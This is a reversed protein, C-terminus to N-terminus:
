LIGAFNLHTPTTWHYAFSAYSKFIRFCHFVLNACNLNLLTRNNVPTLFSAVSYLQIHPTGNLKVAVALISGDCNVAIQSAPSPLTVKRIPVNQEVQQSELDRLCAVIVEANSSGVFVIGHCSASAILNCKASLLVNSSGDFFPSKSQLRFSIDQFFAFM